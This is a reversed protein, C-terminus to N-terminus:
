EPAFKNRFQLFLLLLINFKRKCIVNNKVISNWLTYDKLYEGEFFVFDQKGMLPVGRLYINACFDKM